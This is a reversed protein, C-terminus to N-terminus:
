QQCRPCFCTGRGGLSIKKIGTKCKVCPRGRRGYVKLRLHYDGKKGRGNVYEDVSSGRCQIADQLVKQIARHLGKIEEGKLRNAPRGPLIGALFLAEQAYLNGIGGIFTQDMLLPKIRTKKNALMEKFKKVTFEKTLPEIGLERVFKLKQWDCVLRLEAFLRQDNFSLYRGGSLVFVVRAKEQKEASYILQGTMRLHVVLYDGTSLKMALVKARRLFDQFTAGKLRRKFEAPKPEKIVKPNLIEVDKIKKGKVDRILDRRITEVEPLEPM